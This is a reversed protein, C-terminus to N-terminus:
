KIVLRCMYILLAIMIACPVLAIFISMFTNVVAALSGFKWEVVGLAISFGIATAVAKLFEKMIPLRFFNYLLIFFPISPIANKKFLNIIDSTIKGLTILSIGGGLISMVFQYPASPKIIVNVLLLTILLSFAVSVLCFAFRDKPQADRVKGKGGVILKTCLQLIFSVLVTDMLNAAGILPEQSWLALYSGIDTIDQVYPIGGCIAAFVDYLESFSSCGILVLCFLLTYSLTCALNATLAIEKKGADIGFQILFVFISVVVITITLSYSM